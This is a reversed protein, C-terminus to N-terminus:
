SNGMWVITSTVALAWLLFAAANDWTAYQRLLRKKLRWKARTLTDMNM